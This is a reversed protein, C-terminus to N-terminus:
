PRYLPGGSDGKNNRGRLVIEDDRNVSLNKFEDRRIVSMKSTQLIPGNSFGARMLDARKKCASSTPDSHLDECHFTLDGKTPDHWNNLPQVVFPLINAATLSPCKKMKLLAYDADENKITKNIIYLPNPIPQATKCYALVNKAKDPNTINEPKTRGFWFEWYKRMPYLENTGKQYLCHAATLIYNHTTPLGDPLKILAGSCHAVKEVYTRLEKNIWHGM